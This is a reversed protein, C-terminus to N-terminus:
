RVREWQPPPPPCCKKGASWRSGSQHDNLFVRARPLEGRPTLATTHTCISHHPLTTNRHTNVGHCPHTAMSEVCQMPPADLGRSLRRRLPEGVAGHRVPVPDPKQRLTRLAGPPPPTAPSRSTWKKQSTSISNFGPPDASLPLQHFTIQGWVQWFCGMKPIQSTKFVFFLM